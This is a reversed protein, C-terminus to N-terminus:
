FVHGSNISMLIVIRRIKARLMSLQPRVTPTIDNHTFFFVTM